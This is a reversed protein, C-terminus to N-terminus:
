QAYDGAQLPPAYKSRAGGSAVHSRVQMSALNLADGPQPRWAALRRQWDGGARGACPTAASRPAIAPAASAATPGFSARSAAAAASDSGSQPAACAFAQRIASISAAQGTPAAIPLSPTTHRTSASTPAWPGSWARHSRFASAMTVLVHSRRDCNAASGPIAAASEAGSSRQGPLAHAAAAVSFILSRNFCSALARGSAQARAAASIAM